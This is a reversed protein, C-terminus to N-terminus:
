GQDAILQSYSVRHLIPHWVQPRSIPMHNLSTVLLGAGTLLWPPVCICARLLARAMYIYNELFTGFPQTTHHRWMYLQQQMSVEQWVLPSKAADNWSVLAVHVAHGLDTSSLISALCSEHNPNGIPPILM